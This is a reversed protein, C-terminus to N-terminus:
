RRDLLRRVLEDLLRAAEDLGRETLPESASDWAIKGDRDYLVQHPISGAFRFHDEFAARQDKERYTKWHFNEFQAGHDRLFSRVDAGAHAKDLSVSVCALGRPAYKRHLEVLHPFSEVCPPCWTAWFDVLVVEGKHAKVAADLTAHTADTVTVEPPPPASCGAVLGAAVVALLGARVCARM